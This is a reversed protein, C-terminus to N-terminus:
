RSFCSHRGASEPARPVEARCYRCLMRRPPSFACPRRTVCGAVFIGTPRKAVSPSVTDSQSWYKFFGEGSSMGLKGEDLMQKLMKEMGKFNYPALFSPIKVYMKVINYATQIGVTDLIRFPGKPSGTGMTWAKDISEPDSIGNVYLDMGSFLLPVLMSNLLYGSKEKLVPLPVMRINGAFKMVEDFYKKDTKSQSMIEATNNKWISNAFHLSLYKDPRGTYKAFKSPLLTSSNTVLITKEPMLPALKQYFAIKEEANEAMSEIVIDADAVAKKLDLELKIGSYAAEVKARCADPDFSEYDSIGMAWIAPTKGEPTAMKDITALYTEKLHDLKPQTRGISGESRLWITVHFGCYAAQFAIQSGLVGGGAVVVNTLKM